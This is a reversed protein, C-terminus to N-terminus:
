FWQLPTLANACQLCGTETLSKKIHAHSMAGCLVSPRRCTIMQHCDALHSVYMCIQRKSGIKLKEYIQEHPMFLYIHIWHGLGIVVESIMFCLHAASNCSIINADTASDDLMWNTIFSCTENAILVVWLGWTYYHRRQNASSGHFQEQHRALLSQLWFCLIAGHREAHRYASGVVDPCAGSSDTSPTRPFRRGSRSWWHAGPCDTATSPPTPHGSVYRRLPAWNSKPWPFTLALWHGVWWAWGLRTAPCHLM